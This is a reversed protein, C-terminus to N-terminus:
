QMKITLRQHKVVKEGNPGDAAIFYLYEGEPAMEGGVDRGDWTAEPNDTSWVTKNNKDLIVLSYNTLGESTVVFYDNSGDGNPSFVNPLHKFTYGKGVPSPETPNPKTTNEARQKVIREPDFLAPAPKSPESKAPEVKPTEAVTNAHITRIPEPAQLDIGITNITSSSTRSATKLKNNQVVNQTQQKQAQVDLKTESGTEETIKSINEETMNSETQQATPTIKREPTESRFAFYSAVSLSAAGIVLAAVKGASFATGAASAGTAGAGIQSSIANWMNPNVESPHNQLKEAVEKLWKDNAM